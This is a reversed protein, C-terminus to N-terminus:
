RLYQEAAALLDERRPLEEPALSVLLMVLQRGQSNHLEQFRIQRASGDQEDRQINLRDLRLDIVDAWLQHEADMLVAATIKLHARLTDTGVQLTAFQCDLAEIEAQIAAADPNAGQSDDFGWGSKQLTNLKHRLLSRHRELEARENQVDVIRSLALSLLHDFARRKLLRRTEDESAAPDVLRHDRFNVSVQAVDRRVIDGDLEMGFTHKQVREALLLATVRGGDAARNRFENLLSGRAFLELMQDASGFLAGLRPDSSYTARGAPLPEPLSDIVAVVHDIAHIVPARLQKRYGSLARLRPDTADVTRETAADILAEPYRGPEGAGGSFISQFLRLM